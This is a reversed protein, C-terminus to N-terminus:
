PEDPSNEEIRLRRFWARRGALPLHLCIDDGFGMPSPFYTITRCENGRAAHVRQWSGLTGVTNQPSIYLIKM